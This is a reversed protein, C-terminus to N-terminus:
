DLKCHIAKGDAGSDKGNVGHLDGNPSGSKGFCAKLASVVYNTVALM